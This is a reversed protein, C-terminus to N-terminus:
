FSLKTSMGYKGATRSISPSHGSQLYNFFVAVLPRLYDRVIENDSKGMDDLLKSLTSVATASISKSGKTTENVANQAEASLESDFTKFYEYDNKTSYKEAKLGNIVIDSQVDRLTSLVKEFESTNDGFSRAVNMRYDNVKGQFSDSDIYNNFISELRKSMKRSRNSGMSNTLPIFHKSRLDGTSGSAVNALYPLERDIQDFGFDLISKMNNISKMDNDLSTSKISQLQGYTSIAQNILGGIAQTIELPNMDKALNGALGKTSAGASTLTPDGELGALDPNIGAAKLREAKATPSNYIRDYMNQYDLLALDASFEQSAMETQILRNRSDTGTTFMDDPNRHLLDVYPNSITDHANPINTAM